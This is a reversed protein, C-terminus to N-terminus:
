DHSATIHSICSVLAEPWWLVRRGYLIHGILWQIFNIILYWIEIAADHQNDYDDDDNVIMMIMMARMITIM